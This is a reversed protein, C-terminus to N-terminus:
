WLREADGRQDGRPHGRPQLRRSSAEPIPRRLIVLQVAEDRGELDDCVRRQMAARMLAAPGEYRSPMCFIAMLASRREVAELIFAALLEGEHQDGFAGLLVTRHAEGLMDLLARAGQVDVPRSKIRRCVSDPYRRRAVTIGHAGLEGIGIFQLPAPPKPRAPLISLGRNWACAGPPYHQDLFIWCSMPAITISGCRWPISRCNHPEFM